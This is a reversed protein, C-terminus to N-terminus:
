VGRSKSGGFDGKTAINKYFEGRRLTRRIM